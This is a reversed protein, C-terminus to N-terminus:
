ELILNNSTGKAYMCGARTTHFRQHRAFAFFGRKLPYNGDFVFVNKYTYILTIRFLVQFVNDDKWALCVGFQLWLIEKFLLSAYYVLFLPTRQQHTYFGNESIYALLLQEPNQETNGELTCEFRVREREKWKTWLVENYMLKNSIRKKEATYM